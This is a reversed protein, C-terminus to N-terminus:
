NKGNQKIFGALGILGTGLLLLASPEPVPSPSQAPLRRMMFQNTGPDGNESNYTLRLYLDPQDTKVQGILENWEQSIDMAHSFLAHMINEAQSLPRDISPSVNDGIKILTAGANTSPILFIVTLIVLCTLNKIAM